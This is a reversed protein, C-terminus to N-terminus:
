RGFEMTGTDYKLDLFLKGERVFYVSAAALDRLFVREHSGLPCAAMTSHSIVITIRSQELRYTGGAGNCDAQVRLTGDPELRLRYRSPDAPRSETDNNYRTHLWQWDVGVAAAAEASRTRAPWPGYLVATLGEHGVGDVQCPGTEGLCEVGEMPSFLVGPGASRPAQRLAATLREAASRGLFAEALGISPGFRDYCVGRVQSCVVGRDPSALGPPLETAAAVSGLSWVTILAVSRRLRPMM